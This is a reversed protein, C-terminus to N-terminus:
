GVVERKRRREETSDGESSADMTEIPQSPPADSVPNCKPCKGNKSAMMHNYCFNPQLENRKVTVEGVVGGKNPKSKESKKFWPFGDLVNESEDVWDFFDM